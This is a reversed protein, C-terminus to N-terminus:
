SITEILVLAIVSLAATYWLWWGVVQIVYERGGIRGKFLRGLVLLGMVLAATLHWAHFLIFLSISSAYAHLPVPEKLGAFLILSGIFGALTLLWGIAVGARARAAVGARTRRYGWTWAAAAVVAGVALLINGLTAPAPESRPKFQGMTNLGDLYVFALYIALGLMTWSTILLAAGYRAFGARAAPDPHAPPNFAATDVAGGAIVPAGM